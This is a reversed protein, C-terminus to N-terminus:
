ETCYAYACKDISPLDYVFYSGCNIVEIDISGSNCHSCITWTKFCVTLTARQNLLTPHTGSSIYGQQLTGCAYNGTVCGEKIRTGAPGMIRYFNRGKWDNKWRGANDSDCLYNGGLKHRKHTKDVDQTYHRRADNLVEYNSCAADLVTESFFYKCTIIQM